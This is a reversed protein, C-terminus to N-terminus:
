SSKIPLSHRKRGNKKMDERSEQELKEVEEKSVSLISKLAEEFRQVVAHQEPKDTQSRM